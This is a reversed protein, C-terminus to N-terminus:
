DPNVTAHALIRFTFGGAAGCRAAANFLSTVTVPLGIATDSSFDFNLARENEQTTDACVAGTVLDVDKFEQENFHFDTQFGASDITTSALLHVTGTSAMTDGNCPNIFTLAVPATMNTVVAALSLRALIMTFVASVAAM